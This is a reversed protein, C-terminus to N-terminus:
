PSRCAVLLAAIDYISCCSSYPHANLPLLMSCIFCCHRLYLLLSSYAKLPPILGYSHAYLPLLLSHTFCNNATSLAAHAILPPILHYTHANPPLLLSHTFCNNATSLAAPATLPPILDYTHAATLLVAPAILPPIPYNTLANLPLLLSSNLYPLLATPPAPAILPPITYNILAYSPNKAQKPSNLLNALFSLKHPWVSFFVLLLSPEGYRYIRSKCYKLTNEFFISIV